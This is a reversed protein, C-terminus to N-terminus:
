EKLCTTSCYNWMKGANTGGKYVTFKGVGEPWASKCFVISASSSFNQAFNELKCNNDIKGFTRKDKSENSLLFRCELRIWLNKVSLNEVIVQEEVQLEKTKALEIIKKM